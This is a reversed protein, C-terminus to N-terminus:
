WGFYWRVAHFFVPAAFCLPAVRDLLGVAGTVSGKGGWSQVGADRKLAKMVFEGLTGSGGALFGMVLAPVPKFPTAWYLLAGLLASGLAGILWARWSFSRSIAGAAPRERLRRSAAEQVIQATAVVGVLYLVMFAGRDEYNPLDLLLLAPAHSMGYVCVM